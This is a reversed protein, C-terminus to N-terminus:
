VLEERRRSIEPPRTRQVREHQPPRPAATGLLLTRVLPSGGHLGVAAPVALCTLALVVVTWLPAGTLAAGATLVTLAGLNRRTRGLPVTM